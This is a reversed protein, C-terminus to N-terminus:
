PDLSVIRSDFCVLCGIALDAPCFLMIILNVTEDFAILWNGVVVALGSRGIVYFCQGVFGLLWM